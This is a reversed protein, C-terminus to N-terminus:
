GVVYLNETLYDNKIFNRVWRSSRQIRNNEGNYTYEIDFIDDKVHIIRKGSLYIAKGERLLKMANRINRDIKVM